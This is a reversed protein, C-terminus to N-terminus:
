CLALQCRSQVYTSGRVCACARVCMCVRVHVCACARVCRNNSIVLGTGIKAQLDLFMQTHGAACTANKNRCAAQAQDIFCGDVNGTLTMNICESIYFDVMAQQAFDFSLMNTNNPFSSDGTVRVVKGSPWERLWWDPHNLFKDHLEYFPWDMESNYYFVCSANPNIGKISKCTASIKDEAYGPQRMAMGKEIVM